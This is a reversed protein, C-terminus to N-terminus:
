FPLGRTEDDGYADAVQKIVIYFAAAQRLTGPLFFLWNYYKEMANIIPDNDSGFYLNDMYTERYQVAGQLIYGQLEVIKKGPEGLLHLADNAELELKAIGPMFDDVFDGPCGNMPDNLCTNMNEIAEILQSNLKLAKLLNKM